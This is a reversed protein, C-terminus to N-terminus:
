FLRRPRGTDVILRPVHAVARRDLATIERNRRGIRKLVNSIRHANGKFLLTDFDLDMVMLYGGRTLAFDPRFEGREHLPGVPHLDEFVGDPIHGCRVALGRCEHGLRYHAIVTGAHVHMLRHPFPAFVQERAVAVRAQGFEGQIVDAPYDLM